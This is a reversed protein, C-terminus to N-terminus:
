EGEEIQAARADLATNAADLAQQEAQTIGDEKVGELRAVCLERDRRHENKVEAPQIHQLATQHLTEGAYKKGVAM